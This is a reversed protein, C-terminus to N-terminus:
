FVKPRFQYPNDKRLSALSRGIQMMQTAENNQQRSELIKGVYFYAEPHQKDRNIVEQLFFQARDSNGNNWEAVGLRFYIATELRYLDAYAEKLRQPWEVILNPNRVLVQQYIKSVSFIAITDQPNAARAKQLFILSEDYNGTQYFLVALNYNPWFFRGNAEVSKVWADAAREYDGSAYHCLGLFAYADFMGGFYRVIKDYYHLYPGMESPSFSKGSINVELLKDYSAPISHNLDKIRAYRVIHERSIQIKEWTLMHRVSLFEYSLLSIVVASTIIALAISFIRNTSHVINM